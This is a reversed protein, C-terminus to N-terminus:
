ETSWDPKSSTITIFTIGKYYIETIWSGGIQQSVRIDSPNVEAAMLEAMQVSADYRPYIARKNANSTKAMEVLEDLEDFEDPGTNLDPDGDDEM